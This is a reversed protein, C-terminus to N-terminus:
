PTSERVCGFYYLLGSDANLTNWNTGPDSFAGFTKTVQMLSIAPTSSLTAQFSMSESLWGRGMLRVTPAGDTHVGILYAGPAITASISFAKDGTADAALNGGDAILNGVNLNSDATYLGMRIVKGAAAATTVSCALQDLTKQTKTFIPLYYITNAGLAITGGINNYLFVGPLSYHVTSGNKIRPVSPVSPPTYPM